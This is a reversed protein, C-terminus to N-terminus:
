HRLRRTPEPNFGLTLVNKHM